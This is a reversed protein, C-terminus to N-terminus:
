CYGAGGLYFYDIVESLDDIDLTGAYFDDIAASLEDIDIECDENADYQNYVPPEDNGNAIEEPPIYLRLDGITVYDGFAQKIYVKDTCTFSGSCDADFVRVLNRSSGHDKMVVQSTSDEYWKGDDDASKVVTWAKGISGAVKGLDDNDYIPVDTLRLNGANTGDDFLEVYLPDALSYFGDGDIDAYVLTGFDGGDFDLDNGVDGLDDHYDVKTNSYSPDSCYLLRIDGYSVDGSADMDLYVDEGATYTDDDISDYYGIRYRKDDLDAFRKVAYVVDIDCQVVKSGCAPWGEDIASQPIYLRFDGVTVFENHKYENGREMYVLQQLYLKDPCTWSGSCDSDIFGLLDAVTAPERNEDPLPELEWGRDYDEYLVRSYNEGISGAVPYTVMQDDFVPCDSIRIDNTSVLSDNNMDMYIPDGITYGEFEPEGTLVFDLDFFKFVIQQDDLDDGFADPIVLEDDSTIDDDCYQVKTNAKFGYSNDTIRIDGASVDEDDDMDIYVGETAPLDYAGNVSSEVYGWSAGPIYLSYVADKNGQFVKTGCELGCPEDPPIYLRTDGITVFKEFSGEDNEDFDDNYPQNIYLKDGASWEDNCDNDFFRILEYPYGDNGQGDEVDTGIEWLLVEPYLTGYDLGPTEGVVTWKPAIAGAAWVLNGYDDYVDGAPVDTVRIDGPSVKGNNDIDIYVPDYVDFKGRLDAKESYDAYTLIDQDINPKYATGAGTVDGDCMVVQTNPGCNECNETLRIDGVSVKDDGPYNMDLYFVGQVSERIWIQTDHNMLRFTTEM